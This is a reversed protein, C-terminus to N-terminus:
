PTAVRGGECGAGGILAASAGGAGGGGAGGGGDASGVGGVSGTGVWAAGVLGSGAVVRMSAGFSNVGGGGGTAARADSSPGCM